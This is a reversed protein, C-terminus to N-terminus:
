LHARACIKQKDLCQGNWIATLLYVPPLNLRQSFALQGRGLRDRIKEAVKPAIQKANAATIIERGRSSTRHEALWVHAVGERGM